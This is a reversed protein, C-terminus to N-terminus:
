WAYMAAGNVKIRLDLYWPVMWQSAQPLHCFLRHKGETHMLSFSFTSLFLVLYLLHLTLSSLAQSGTKKKGRLNKKRQNRQERRRAGLRESVHRVHVEDRETKVLPWPSPMISPVLWKNAWGDLHLVILPQKAETTWTSKGLGGRECLNWRLISCAGAFQVM